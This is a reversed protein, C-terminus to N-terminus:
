VNEINPLEIMKPEVNQSRLWDRFIFGTSTPWSFCKDLSLLKFDDLEENLVIEGDALVHYGIVIQNMAASPYVNILTADTADLNLEEKVERIACQSPSEAHEIFGTILGYYPGPWARNHALVIEGQYEVVVAVIPTPNDYHIFGCNESCAMRFEIDSSNPILPARCNPCFTFEIM